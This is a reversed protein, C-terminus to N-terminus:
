TQLRALCGAEELWRDLESKDAVSEYRARLKLLSKAHYKQPKQTWTRGALDITFEDKNAALAEANAISWPLFLRGVEEKLLPMLTPNLAEWTEFEGEARPWFMRQVWALVNQYSSQILAGATPDTWAAYVQGWLSFDAFAPRAGFLYSRTALHTNLIQLGNRFSEEIQPGTIPSSGVFGVRKLMRAQMQEAIAHQKEEGATPMIEAVIRRATSVQDVEAKWRLHFMWKNGWEDGFEELLASIFKSVEGPPHISPEPHIAEMKEIIPTSDQMGKDEPTVVLPVLPLKAYKHFAPMQAMSRLIWQHPIEKYRFYSRVKVSYPSLESGYIRYNQTM